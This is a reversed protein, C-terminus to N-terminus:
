NTIQSARPFRTKIFSPPADSTTFTRINYVICALCHLPFLHNGHCSAGGWSLQEPFLGSCVAKGGNQPFGGLVTRYNARYTSPAAAAGAFGPVSGSPILWFHETLLLAQILIESLLLTREELSWADYHNGTVWVLVLQLSTWLIWHATTLLPTRLLRSYLGVKTM